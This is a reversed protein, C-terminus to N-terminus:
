YDYGIWIVWPDEGTLDDDAKLVWARDIRIPFGPMDLRIGMGASSALDDAHFEFSESWVNGTDYFLAFRVGNVIPITYEINAMALSRGGVPRFDGDAVTKGVPIVKPGVDRYDFGRLTQGGGLFLRDNIPIEEADGFPEVTEFRTRLSIVHKFWLPLYHSTRFGVDIMDTDGGLSGGSVDCFLSARNGRTPIFANDRTDSRLTLGLTSKTLNEEKVFSYTRSPEDAHYYDNTDSVDTIESSVFEYRLQV